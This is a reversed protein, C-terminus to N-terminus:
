AVNQFATRTEEPIYYGLRSLTAVCVPLNFIKAANAHRTRRCWHEGEKLTGADANCLRNLTTNSIGLAIAAKPTSLHTQLDTFSM